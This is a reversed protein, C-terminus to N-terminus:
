SRCSSPWDKNFEEGAGINDSLLELVESIANELGKKEKKRSYSANVGGM